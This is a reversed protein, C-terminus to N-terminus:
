DACYIRVIVECCPPFPEISHRGIYIAQSKLAVKYTNSWKLFYWLVLIQEGQSDFDSFFLEVM